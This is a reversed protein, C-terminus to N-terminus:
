DQSAPMPAAVAADAHVHAYSETTLLESPDLKSSRLWPAHLPERLCADRLSAFAPPNLPQSDGCSGGDLCRWRCGRLYKVAFLLTQGTRYSYSHCDLLLSSPLLRPCRAVLALALRGCDPTMCVVCSGKSSLATRPSWTSRGGTHIIRCAPRYM